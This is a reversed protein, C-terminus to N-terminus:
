KTGVGPVDQLLCFESSLMKDYFGEAFASLWAEDAKPVTIALLAWRPRAGMAALDSLNVALAKHGVFRPEADPLFHIGSVITDTTVVLEHGPAPEVLAADDGVGLTADRAPRSFYRDILEFETTM